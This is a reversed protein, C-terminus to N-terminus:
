PRPRRAASPRCRTGPRARGARTPSARAEGRMRRHVRHNRHALRRRSQEGAGVEADDDRAEASVRAAGAPAVRTCTLQPRAEDRRHEEQQLRVHGVKKPYTRVFKGDKIQTMVICRRRCTTPSTPRVSSAAPMSPTDGDEACRVPVSPQADRRQRDGEERRGPLPPCRGVFVGLQLRRERDWRSGGRAEEADPQEQVRLLVPLTSLLIQTGDVDAGGQDVILNDYCAQTCGWVKVSNVGQLTAEKRLDAMKNGGNKAFTSNDQKIAQVIPTM